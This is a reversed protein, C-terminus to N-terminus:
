RSCTAPKASDQYGRHLTVARRRMSLSMPQRWNSRFWNHWSVPPDTRSGTSFVGGRGTTSAGFVGVNDGAGLVGTGPLIPLPPSPASALSKGYVGINTASVSTGIVGKGQISKGVVGSGAGDCDGEVGAIDGIGFIGTGPDPPPVASPRQNEMPRSQGYLGVIDGAGFVGVSGPFGKPDITPLTAVGAVGWGSDCAGAVGVSGGAGGASDGYIGMVNAGTNLNRGAFAVNDHRNNAIITANGADGGTLENLDGVEFEDGAHLDTHQEHTNLWFNFGFPGNPDSISM